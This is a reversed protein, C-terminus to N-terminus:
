GIEFRQYPFIKPDYSQKFTTDVFVETGADDYTGVLVHEPEGNTEGVTIFFSPINVSRLISAVLMSQDDCDGFTYGRDQIESILFSPDNLIEEPEQVFHVRSQVFDHVRRITESRTKGVLGFRIVADRFNPDVSANQVFSIM